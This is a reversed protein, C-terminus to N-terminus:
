LDLVGLHALVAVAADADGALCREVLEALHEDRSAPVDKQIASESGDPRIGSLVVHHAGGHDEIRLVGQFGPEDLEFEVPDAQRDAVM